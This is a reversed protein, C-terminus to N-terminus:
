DANLIGLWVNNYADRYIALSDFEFPNKDNLELSLFVGEYTIAYNIGKTVLIDKEGIGDLDLTLTQSVLDLDDFDDSNFIFYWDYIM